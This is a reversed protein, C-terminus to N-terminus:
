HAKPLEAMLANLIPMLVKEVNAHVNRYIEQKEEEIRALVTRLAANAEQLAKREVTLQRNSEQLERESFFRMAIHGIREAVADLLVREEKLFPGEDAAPREELYFVTVEGIREDYVVIQSSQRWRTIKFGSTKFTRGQFIIRACTTEPYQWSPPLLNVLDQFFHDLSDPHREAVQSIGYLCNLEKIRERLAIVVKEPETEYNPPIRWLFPIEVPLREPKETERLPLSHDTKM